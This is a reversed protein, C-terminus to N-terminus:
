PRQHLLDLGEGIPSLLYRDCCMSLEELLKEAWKFSTSHRVEFLWPFETIDPLASLVMLSQLTSFFSARTQSFVRDPLSYIVYAVVIRYRIDYKQLVLINQETAAEVFADPHPANVFSLACFDDWGLM